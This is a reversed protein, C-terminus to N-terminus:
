DEKDFVCHFVACSIYAVLMVPWLPVLIAADKEPDTNKGIKKMIEQYYATFGIGVSFYIVIGITFWVWFM